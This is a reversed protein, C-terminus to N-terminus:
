VMFKLKYMLFSLFFKDKVVKTTQLKIGHCTDNNYDANNKIINMIILM